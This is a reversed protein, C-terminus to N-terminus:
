LCGAGLQWCREVLDDCNWSTERSEELGEDKKQTKKLVIALKTKLIHLCILYSKQGTGSLTEMEILTLAKYHGILGIHHTKNPNGRM